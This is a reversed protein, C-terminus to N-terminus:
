DLNITEIKEPPTFKFMQDSFSPNLQISSFEMILDLHSNPRIIEMKKPFYGKEKLDFFDSVIVELNLTGDEEFTQHRFIEFNKESVWIKKLICYRDKKKEVVYLIYYDPFYEYFCINKKYYEEVNHVIFSDIIDNPRLKVAPYTANAPYKSSGTLLKAEKPLYMYFKNGDSVIDFLTGAMLSYGNLRLSYPKLLALKGHCQFTSGEKRIYDKFNFKLDAKFSRIQTNASDVKQILEFVSYKPTVTAGHTILESYLRTQRQQACGALVVCSLVVSIFFLKKREM